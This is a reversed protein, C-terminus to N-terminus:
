AETRTTALRHGEVGLPRAEGQVHIVV